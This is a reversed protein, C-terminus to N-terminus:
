LLLLSERLVLGCGEELLDNVPKFAEVLDVCHMPVEFNGIDEEM